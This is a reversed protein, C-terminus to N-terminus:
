APHFNKNGPMAPITHTTDNENRRSGDGVYGGSRILSEVADPLRAGAHVTILLGGARLGREFKQADADSFGEGALSALLEGAVVGILIPGLTPFGAAVAAAAGLAGGIAAAGVNKAQAKKDEAEGARPYARADLADFDDTIVGTENSSLVRAHIRSLPFGHEILDRMAREASAGDYFIAGVQRSLPAPMTQRLSTEGPIDSSRMGTAQNIM